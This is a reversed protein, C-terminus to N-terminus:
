TPWVQVTIVLEGVIDGVDCGVGPGVSDGVVADQLEPSSLAEVCVQTTVVCLGVRKTVLRGVNVGVLEGVNSGM